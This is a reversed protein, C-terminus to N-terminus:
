WFEGYQPTLLYGGLAELMAIVGDIKKEQREKSPKTNGNRDRAMVVNRICHRSVVNNDLFCRGSLILREFEKTPRNFNGLGQSFPEMPLGAETASIVFQTANWADYAVKRLSLVRGVDQIDNLIFDYDTVNGPTVVLAGARRWEGYLQHFRNETLAAEPLYYRLWYYVGEPRPVMFAAATLDSTSALDVGAYCDCDRFDELPRQHVARLVYHEPIWVKEADCWINFNKTKIGVEESPTNCAKTVQRRLYDPSVTVGLNPAIKVWNHEDKWDDGEDMAFIMCFLSDDTKLGALVETCTTRMQYCPGLKDFGASTIIVSLPQRRMGTGSQLVDKMSTDRAAHFEDLLYMSPNPGDLKSADAAIVRLSSDTRVFQINDRYIGLHSRKRNFRRAFRSCFGYAIKAQDRSNAALYVEAGPENDAIMSYLCLGAAFATKGQKRSMELYVDTTVRVGTDLWRFGYIGAVVFQQWPELTFPQGASRGQFHRLTGFFSVVRAIEDPCYVMRTDRQFRLFRAAAQRVLVGVTVRGGLVDDAYREWVTMM